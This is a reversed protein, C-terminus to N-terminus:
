KGNWLTFPCRLVLETFDAKTLHANINIGVSANNWRPLHYFLGIREYYPKEIIKANAGMHRYLYMGLAMSLSFRHYFVEHKAAIGVSWPSHKLHLGATEDMRAIDNAYTGYYVDTGLGSAWRRAYRYMVDAHLSYAPYFTFQETRYDPANPPTAFQTRQWDELLTKGGVGISILAYLRKSFGDKGDKLNRNKMLRAAQYVKEYSPYYVLSLSPGLVNSGKNPRAMAGNSHHVFEISARLGWHPALRYTQHVGAGFYVSLHSGILENDVNNEKDYILNSWGTGLSLSYATEWHKSRFVAREFSAYLSVTNGLRSVYDVPQAMGWDPDAYRKMTVKTNDTYRLGVSVTPYLYDRDILFSDQPLAQWRLEVAYSINERRHLWKRTYKDLALQMSPNILVRGGWHAVSDNVNACSADKVSICFCLFVFVVRFCVKVSRNYGM